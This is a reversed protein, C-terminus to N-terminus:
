NAFCINSVHTPPQQLRVVVEDHEAVLAVLAHMLMACVKVADRGIVSCPIAVNARCAFIRSGNHALQAALAAAAELASQLATPCMYVTGQVQWLRDDALM